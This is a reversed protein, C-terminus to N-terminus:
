RSTSVEVLGRGGRDLSAVFPRRGDGVRFFMESAAPINRPYTVDRGGVGPLPLLGLGAKGEPMFAGEAPAVTRAGDLEPVAINTWWYAPLTRSTANVIRVAAYLFQSAPPLHLDVQWLFGKSANTQSM